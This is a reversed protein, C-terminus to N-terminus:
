MRVHLYTHVEHKQVLNFFINAENVAAILTAKLVYYNQIYTGKYTTLFGSLALTALHYM